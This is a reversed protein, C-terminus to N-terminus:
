KEIRYMLIIYLFIQFVNFFLGDIYFFNLIFAWLWVCACGAIVVWQYLGGGGVVIWWGGGGGLVVKFFIGLILVFSEFFFHLSLDVGNICGLDCPILGVGGGGVIVHFGYGFLFFFFEGFKCAIQM